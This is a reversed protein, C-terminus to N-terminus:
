LDVPLLFSRPRKRRQVALTPPGQVRRSSCLDVALALLADLTMHLGGNALTVPTRAECVVVLSHEYSLRHKNALRERESSTSTEAPRMQSAHWAPVILTYGRKAEQLGGMDEGDPDRLVQDRGDARGIEDQARM